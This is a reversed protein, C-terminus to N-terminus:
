RGGKKATGATVKILYTKKMTETEEMQPGRPIRPGDKSENSKAATRRLWKGAPM